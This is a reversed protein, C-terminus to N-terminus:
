TYRMDGHVVWTYFPKSWVTTVVMKVKKFWHVQGMTTGPFISTDGVSFLAADHFNYVNEQQCNASNHSFSSITWLYHNSCGMYKESLQCLHWLKYKMISFIPVRRGFGTIFGVTGNDIQLLYSPKSVSHRHIKFLQFYTFIININESLWSQIYYNSDMQSLILFIISIIIKLKFGGICVQLILLYYGIIHQTGLIMQDNISADVYSWVTNWKQFSMM